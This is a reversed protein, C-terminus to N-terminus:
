EDFSNYGDDDYDNDGVVLLVVLVSSWSSTQEVRAMLTDYRPPPPSPAGKESVRMEKETSLCRPLHLGVVPQLAHASKRRCSTM